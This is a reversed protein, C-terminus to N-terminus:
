KTFRDILALIVAVAGIAGVVYGWKDKFGSSRGQMTVVYETLPRMTEAIKEVAAIVESKTAYIAREAKLQDLTGNHILDKYTQIERALVLAKEREYEKIELAKARESSVETYRRDYAEMMATFHYFLTPITWGEIPGSQGM